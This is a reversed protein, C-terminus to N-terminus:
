LKSDEWSEHKHFQFYLRQVMNINRLLSKIYSYIVNFLSKKRIEFHEIHQNFYKKLNDAVLTMYPHFFLKDYLKNYDCDFLQFVLTDNEKTMRLGHFHFFIVPYHKGEYIAEGNEYRYLGM